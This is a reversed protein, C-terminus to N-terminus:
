LRFTTDIRTPLSIRHSVFLQIVEQEYAELMDSYIAPTGATKSDAQADVM